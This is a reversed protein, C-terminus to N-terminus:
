ISVLGVKNLKVTKESSNEICNTGDETFCLIISIEKAKILEGGVGKISYFKVSPEPPLFVFSIYDGAIPLDINNIYDIEKIMVGKEPVFAFFKEEVAGADLSPTSYFHNEDLDAFVGMFDYVSAEPSFLYVGFGGEPVEGQFQSSSMAMEEALRISKSLNYATRQLAFNQNSPKFNLLVMTTLFTIVGLVVVLEILSFGKQRFKPKIHFMM